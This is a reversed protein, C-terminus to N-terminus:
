KKEKESSKNIIFAYVVVLCIGSVTLAASIHMFAQTMKYMAGTYALFVAPQKISFSDFYKMSLLVASSIWGSAGAIMASIGAWYLVTIKKKRNILILLFVFFVVASVSCITVIDKVKYLKSLKRLVKHESLASIKYVDTYDQIASYASKISSDIKQAFNKDKKYGEKEAYNNFFKTINDELRENAPIKMEPDEGYELGYFGQEICANECRVIYDVTLASTYVAVPIGSSGYRKHYYMELENQAVEGLNKEAALARASSSNISVDATVTASSGILTLVLLVSIILSPIYTSLKNM